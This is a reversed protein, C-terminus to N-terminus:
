LITSTPKLLREGTWGKGVRKYLTIPKINYKEAAQAVTMLGDPTRIFVNRRTNNGQEKRTAWKCNTKTYDANVNIRELTLHDLYGESMDKWFEEFSLDWESCVKIGRGGYNVWDKDSPNSCRSRMNRWIVWIRSGTMGHSQITEGHRCGCSKPKMRDQRRLSQGQLVLEKGCDCRVKWTARASTGSTIKSGERHLVTLYGFKQGTMDKVPNSM